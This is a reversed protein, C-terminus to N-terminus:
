GARPTEALETRVIDMKEHVTEGTSDMSDCDFRLVFDGAQM